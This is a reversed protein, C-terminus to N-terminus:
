RAAVGTLERSAAVQRELLATLDTSPTFGLLDQCRSTDALTAEVEEHGAAEHRIDGTIGTVTQLTSIMEGLTHFTGTGLNVETNVGREAARILGEVADQVDTIDRARTDAGLLRIPHGARLAQLWISFAMDHRQGVGALTYPRLVAISGGDRRHRRCLEEMAVKSRAYGGRPRLQDTELSPRLGQAGFTAGGYVSSSSTAVVPVTPPTAGLLRDTALVNDHWRLFGINRVDYRVGPRAALHFVVDSDSVIRPLDADCLDATIHHYGDDDPRPIRDLGTVTHGGVVLQRTLHRGVFGSSGTVIAHVAQSTLPM